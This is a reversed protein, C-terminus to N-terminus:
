DDDKLDNEPLPVTEKNNEKWWKQYNEYTGFESAGETNLTRVTLNLFTEIIERIASKSDEYIQSFSDESVQESTAALLQKYKTRSNKGLENIKEPFQSLYYIMAETQLDYEGSAGVITKKLCAVDSFPNIDLYGSADEGRLQAEVRWWIKHPPDVGKDLREKSKNYIRLRSDSRSSGIYLTELNRVGDEHLIRKRSKMDVWNYKGLDEGIVDIAIDNRTISPNKMMRLISMINGDRKYESDWHNPNFEYRLPRIDNNKMAMQLISGDQMVWQYDYPYAARSQWKVFPNVKLEDLLSKDSIGGVLTLNDVSVNVVEM